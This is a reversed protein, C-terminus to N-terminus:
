VRKTALSSLVERVPGDAIIKGQDLWIVREVLELLKLRHTSLILTKEALHPRLQEVFHLETTSDLAATPEDFVLMPPNGALARAIAIAQRQGGSLHSGRPGTKLAFGTPHRAVFDRVGSIRIAEELWAEDVDTLGLTLADRVPLDLLATDQLVSGVSRRIVGPHIQRMDVGDYLLVGSTPAYLGLMLRLITSKGSGIKGVLGVKEGPQISFTVDRLSPLTGTPYTFSVNQFEIQGALREVASASGTAADEVPLKMLNRITRYSELGKYARILLGISNTFPAMARGSLMSCAVLAGTSMNGSKIMFVGIVLTAVTVLQVILQSLNASLNSWFMAQRNAYASSDILRDWDALLSGEASQSKINELGTIVDILSNAKANAHEAAAKNAQNALLNAAAGAVSLLVAAILPVIVIPGGILGIVVLFIVFFPLDVLLAVLALPLVGCMRAIEMLSNMLGGPASPKVELKMGLIREMVKYELDVGLRLGVGEVLSARMMKIAFEFVLVLLVGVTLAWLTEIASNPVVRDYVNMMFFPIAMVFLNIFVSGALVEAFYRTNRMIEAGVFENFTEHGKAESREFRPAPAIEIVVGTHRLDLQERTYHRSRGNELTEFFGYETDITSVILCEGDKLLLILPCMRASLSKLPRRLIKATVGARDAAAPFRDPELRGDPLPIGALVASPAFPLAWLGCVDELAKLLPDHRPSAARSAAPKAAPEARANASMAQLRRLRM